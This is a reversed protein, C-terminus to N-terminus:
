IVKATKWRDKVMTLFACLAVTYVSWQGLILRKPGLGEVWCLCWCVWHQCFLEIAKDFIWLCMIITLLHEGTLCHCVGKMCVHSLWVSTQSFTTLVTWNLLFEFLNQKSADEISLTMLNRNISEWHNLQYFYLDDSQSYSTLMSWRGQKEVRQSIVTRYPLQHPFPCIIHLFIIDMIEGRLYM